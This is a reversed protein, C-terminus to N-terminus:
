EEYQITLSKEEILQLVTDMDIDSDFYKFIFDIINETTNGFDSKYTQFVQPLTMTGEDQEITVKANIIESVYKDMAQDLEEESAGDFEDMHELFSPFDLCIFNIRADLVSSEEILSLREDSSSLSRTYKFPSKNNGRM